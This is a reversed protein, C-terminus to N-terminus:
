VPPRLHKLFALLSPFDEKLFVASAGAAFCEQRTKATTAYDSFVAIPVQSAMRAARIVGLGCGPALVLDVIAVDWRGPSAQIYRIADAESRAAAVVHLGGVHDLYESLSAQMMEEDEVLLVRVDSTPEVM